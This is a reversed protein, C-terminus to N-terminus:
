LFAICAKNWSSMDFPSSNLCASDSLSPWTVSDPWAPFIVLSQCEPLCITNLLHHYFCSCLHLGHPQNCALCPLFQIRFDSKQFFFHFILFSRYSIKYFFFFFLRFIDTLIWCIIFIWCLMQTSSNRIELFVIFVGNCNKKIIIKNEMSYLWLVLFAIWTSKRDPCISYDYKSKM